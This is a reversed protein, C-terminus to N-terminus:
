EESTFDRWEVCYLIDDGEPDVSHFTFTHEVNAGGKTPGTIVPKTPAGSAGGHYWTLLENWMTDESILLDNYNPDYPYKPVYISLGHADPNIYDHKESTVVNYVEYMVALARNKVENDPITTEFLQALHYLDVFDPDAFKEVQQCAQQIYDKIEPKILAYGLDSLVAALYNFESLDVTSLTIGTGSFYNVFKAGLQDGNMGPIQVLNNLTSEYNWGTAPETEESGTMYKATDKLEYGVKMM